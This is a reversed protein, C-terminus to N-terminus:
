YGGKQTDDFCPLKPVALDHEIAVLVRVWRTALYLDYMVLVDAECYTVSDM